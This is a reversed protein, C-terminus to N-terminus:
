ESDILFLSFSTMEKCPTDAPAQCQGMFTSDCVAVVSTAATSLHSLHSSETNAKSRQLISLVGESWGSVGRGFRSMELRIRPRVSSKSLWIQFPLM